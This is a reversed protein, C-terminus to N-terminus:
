KKKINGAPLIVRMDSLLWVSKGLSQFLALLQAQAEQGSSVGRSVRMCELAVKAIQTCYLIYKLITKTHYVIKKLFFNQKL